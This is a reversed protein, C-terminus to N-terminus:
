KQRYRRNDIWTLVIILLIGILLSLWIWGLIRCGGGSTEKNKVEKKATQATEAQKEHKGVKEGTATRETTQKATRVTKKTTKTTTKAPKGAITDAPTTETATVEWVTEIEAGETQETATQHTYATDKVTVKAQTTTSETQVHKKVGCGCLIPAFLLLILIYRTKKM